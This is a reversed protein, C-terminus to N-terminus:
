KSASTVMDLLNEFTIIPPEPDYPRAEAQELVITGIKIHLFCENWHLFIGRDSFHSATGM